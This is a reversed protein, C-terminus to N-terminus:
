GKERILLVGLVVVALLSTGLLYVMWRSEPRTLERLQELKQDITVVQSNSLIGKPGVYNLWHSKMTGNWFISISEYRNRLNNSNDKKATVIMEDLRGNLSNFFSARDTFPKLEIGSEAVAKNISEWTQTDIREKWERIASEVQNRAQEKNSGGYIAILKDGVSQWMTAVKQQVANMRLYDRVALNPNSTLFNVNQEAISTIMNLTNGDADLRAQRTAERLSRSTQLEMDQYSAVVSDVMTMILQDRDRISKRYRRITRNHTQEEVMSQVMVEKLSDTRSSLLSIREDYKSLKNQLRIMEDQQDRITVLRSQTTAASNRLSKMWSGYTDPYIAKNILERHKDFSEGFQTIRTRISKINAVSEAQKIANDLDHYTTKFSRKIEYDSASQQANAVVSGTLLLFLSLILTLTRNLNYM